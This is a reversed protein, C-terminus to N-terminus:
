QSNRLYLHGRLVGTSHRDDLDVVIRRLLVTDAIGTFASRTDDFVENTVPQRSSVGQRYRLAHTSLHYGGTEFILWSAGTRVPANWRVVLVQEGSGHPCATSDARVYGVAVVNEPGLQLASDKAPDPLRLGRYRAFVDPASFGCVIALGRFIRGSISDRNIARVDAATSNRLEARLIALASRAADNRESRTTIDRTIATQAQLLVLAIAIVIAGVIAAVLVEILAVGARSRM